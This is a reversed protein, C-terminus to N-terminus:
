PRTLQKQVQNKLLMFKWMILHIVYSTSKDSFVIAKDEISEKLNEGVDEAKYGALVTM